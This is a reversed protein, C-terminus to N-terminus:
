WQAVQSHVLTTVYHNEYFDLSYYRQPHLFTTILPYKQPALCMEVNKLEPITRCTRM